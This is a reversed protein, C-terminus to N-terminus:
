IVDMEYPIAPSFDFEDGLARRMKDYMSEVTRQAGQSLDILTVPLNRFKSYITVMRFCFTHRIHCSIANGYTSLQM